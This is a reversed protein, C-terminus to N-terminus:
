KSISAQEYSPPELNNQIVTQTNKVPVFADAWVIKNEKDVFYGLDKLKNLIYDQKEPEFEPLIYTTIGIKALTYFVRTLREVSKDWKKKNKRKYTNYVTNVIFRHKYRLILPM